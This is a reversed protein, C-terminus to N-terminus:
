QGVNSGTQAFSGHGLLGALRAIDGGLPRDVDISPVTERLVRVHDALGDAPAAPGLSWAQYATLLECAMVDRVLFEVRRLKEAAEFAFTMADEQGLSTDIVGVSAPMALRRLENLAGVARKHVVTLGTQPGPRTTLQDPLGSFRHDLMRHIQQTALEAAQVLALALADMGAALGVAHFNGSTVFEDGVFAPSDDSAALARRADEELRAVTRELHTLVQPVVRFSIPAQVRTHDPSAGALLAGLGRLVREMVADNALRAVSSSYPSLPAHMADIACAFVVRLQRALLSSERRRVIALGLTGPAGALLAIGEKVAVQYPAVRRLRLADAAPRVDGAANVVSGVGLFTQFAHSLPIVEGACGIMTRPIAPVFDDNLRDVLFTCLGPTVGSHGRLFGALRALMLARAESPELYPESGVARALLLNQQHGQQEAESLLIGHLYGTGTNIGYVPVTGLRALLRRHTQELRELLGADIPALRRGEVAVQEFADLTLDDPTRIVLPDL